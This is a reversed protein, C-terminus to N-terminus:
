NSFLEYYIKNKAVGLELLTTELSKMFPPPGCLYFDADLNVSSELYEKSVYGTFDYDVGEKDTDLPRSYFVTNKAGSIKAINEIDEKFPHVKSNQVAQIFHINNRASSEEYLMSLLPTIGIGGSILVIDNSKNKITFLGTPVMAEIVDGLNMKEHLYSSILGGEVKKVSIRYISDNPYMSLSYTRIEDKYKDENTKIKFPLFQGPIHKVLKGGDLAKFYFSMIGPCVEAKDVLVLERFGTWKGNIISSM